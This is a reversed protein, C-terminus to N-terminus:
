GKTKKGSPVYFSFGSHFSPIASKTHKIPHYFDGSYYNINPDANSWLLKTTRWRQQIGFGLYFDSTFHKSRIPFGLMAIGGLGVHSQRITRLQENAYLEDWYIQTFKEGMSLRGCLLLEFYGRGPSAPNGQRFHFRPGVTGIFGTRYIPDHDHWSSEASMLGWGVLRYAVPSYALSGSLSIKPTLTRVYGLKANGCLLNFPYIRLRGAPGGTQASLCAAELCVLFLLLGLIKYRHM